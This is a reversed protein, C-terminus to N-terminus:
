RASATFSGAWRSRCSRVTRTLERWSGTVSCAVGLGDDPLCPRYGSRCCARSGSERPVSWPSRGSPRWPAGCGTPTAAALLGGAYVDGRDAPYIGVHDLRQFRSLATAASRCRTSCRVPPTASRSASASSWCAVPAQITSASGPPVAEPRSARIPAHQLATESASVSPDPRVARWLFWTVPLAMMMGAGHSWANIPERLDFPIMVGECLLSGRDPSCHNPPSDLWSRIDPIKEVREPGGRSYEVCPGLRGSRWTHVSGIRAIRHPRGPMASMGSPLRRMKSGRDIRTQLGFQTRCHSSIPKPDIRHIGASQRERCFLEHPTVVPRTSRSSQAVSPPGSQCRFLLPDQATGDSNRKAFVLQPRTDSTTAPCRMPPHRRRRCATPPLILSTMRQAPFSPASGRITALTPRSSGQGQEHLGAGLLIRPM